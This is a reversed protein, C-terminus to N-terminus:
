VPKSTRKVIGNQEMAAVSMAAIKRLIDLAKYTAQPDPNRALINRAEQVYDEIYLIWESVSHQGGTWTFQPNWKQDQYDREEDILSYVEQRTAKM